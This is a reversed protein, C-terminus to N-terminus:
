GRVLWFWVDFNGGRRGDGSPLRVDLADDQARMGFADGDLYMTPAEPTQAGFIFNGRLTLHALVRPEYNHAALPVFLVGQLWRQTTGVPTWTLTPGESVINAALIIPQFGLLGPSRGWMNVDADNLPYPLDITVFCIPKGRTARPDIDQDFDIRIGRALLPAPVNTDNRFKEDAILVRRVHIAREEAPPAAQPAPPWLVRCDTVTAPFTVIALRGYHRHIGRPPAKQLLEVSADAVSAAFTWYDAVKFEGQADLDFSVQVGNELMVTTGAAPVPMVGGAADLADGKQDWRRVRTHRAPDLKGQADVPFDAAALATDIVISQTEVDVDAAKRMEPPLGSLERWDDTIEIWDGPNFRLVSDRGVSAVSLRTGNVATVSTGVSANERSWKFTAKGVPGGSHIEVRYLQNELGSYGGGGSAIICPDTDAPVAVVSTTLRGGSPRTLNQWAPFGDDPTGCTMNAGIDSLLRVQWVTQLAAVTDVGIAKEVLEPRELYTLEREYVVVYVLHPGPTQPLAAIQAANPFYPQEAYGIADGHEEALCSDFQPAGKGHNEALLGDVYIRGRGITLAGDVLQIQFGTETQRPVTCRGLTDATQARFRRDVVQVLENANSELHVRGQQQLVGNFDNKPDFRLRSYDGSM